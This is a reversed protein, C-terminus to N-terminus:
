LIKKKLIEIKQTIFLVRTIIYSRKILKKKTFWINLKEFILFFIELFIKMSTNAVM